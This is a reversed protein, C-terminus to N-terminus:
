RSLYTLDCLPLLYLYQIYLFFDKEMVNKDKKGDLSM